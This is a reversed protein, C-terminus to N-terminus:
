LDGGKQNRQTPIASLGGWEMFGGGSESRNRIGEGKWPESDPVSHVRRKGGLFKTDQPNRQGKVGMIDHQNTTTCKGATCGEEERQAKIETSKKEEGWDVLVCYRV